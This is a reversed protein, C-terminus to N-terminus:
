AWDDVTVMLTVFKVSHVESPPRSPPATYPVCTAKVIEFVFKVSLTPYPPAAIPPPDDENLIVLLLKTRFM